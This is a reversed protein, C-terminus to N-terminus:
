TRLYLRIAFSLDKADLDKRAQFFIGPQQVGSEPHLYYSPQMLGYEALAPNPEVEVKFNGKVNLQCAPLIRVYQNRLVKDTLKEESPHWFGLIPIEVYTYDKGYTFAHPEQMTLGMYGSLRNGRCVNLFSGDM